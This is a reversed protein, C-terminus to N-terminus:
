KSCAVNDYCAGSGKEWESVAQKFTSKNVYSISQPANMVSGLANNMIVMNVAIFIWSPVRLNSNQTSIFFQSFSSSLYSFSFWKM